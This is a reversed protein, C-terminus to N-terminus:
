VSSESGVASLLPLFKIAVLEHDSEELVLDSRSLRCNRTGPGHKGGESGEGEPFGATLMPAPAPTLGRTQPCYVEM